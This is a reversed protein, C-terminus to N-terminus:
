ATHEIAQLKSIRANIETVTKQYDAMVKQKHKELAAIKQARPDYDDPVEIEIEQEGVYTRHETDDLKCSYVTYDGTQEWSYKNHHIHVITKIKM